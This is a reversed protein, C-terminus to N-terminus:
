NNATEFQNKNQTSSFDTTRALQSGPNNTVIIAMSLLVIPSVKSTDSDTDTINKHSFIPIPIPSIKKPM